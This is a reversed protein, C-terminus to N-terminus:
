ARASLRIRRRNDSNKYVHYGRVATPVTLEFGAMEALSAGQSLARIIRRREFTEDSFHLYEDGEATKGMGAKIAGFLLNKAACPTAFKKSRIRYTLSVLTVSQEQCLLFLVNTQAVIDIFYLQKVRKSDFHNVKFIQLM